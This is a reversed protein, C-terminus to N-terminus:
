FLPLLVFIISSFLFLIPSFGERELSIWSQQGGRLMQRLSIQGAANIVVKQPECTLCNLWQFSNVPWQGESIGAAAAARRQERQQLGMTRVCVHDCPPARAGDLLRRIEWSSRTSTVDTQLALALEVKSNTQFRWMVHRGADMIINSINETSAMGFSTLM